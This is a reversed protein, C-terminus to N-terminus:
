PGPVDLTAMLADPTGLPARCSLGECLYAVGGTRPAREALVGPLDACDSAILFVDARAPTLARLAARWAEAEAEACRVIVQARPALAHRLAGLLTPCADPYQALPAAAARLAREAADLYRTEGLLHGLTLLADIAVANGSPLSDDTWPKPRQILSEADHATFWFGGRERDEFRQLLAEALTIAWDLDRPAFACQLKALLADLVFAHDDLYAPFRARGGAHSAYLRGDDWASARLTGLIEAAMRGLAPGEEPLWRATRAVGAALLANWATLRKDDRLPPTRMTRAALLRQRARQLHTEAAAADIGLEAAADAVDRIQQLHWARDEFNPPRDLGWVRAAVAWADADLLARAEDRQWLYYRGEEGESDADRASAYGGGALRMDADLWAVIGLCAARMAADDWSRAARAYLPLLLANDYLMKEFHPITWAADVCYRFIGGGLHDHLGSTAMHALTRQAMAACTAADIGNAAAGIPAAAEDLLLALEGAHPFKPAGLSGGHDPDHRRAIRALAARLPAADPRAGPADDGVRALWDRLEANQTRLADRQQDFAARLRLLLQAFGPMGYRPERPFYTGAFFPTLDQPDLFVTLPWGGGRGTLAQHALQYVRDLDPREERDVKINVFQANMAAATATDEFCEHAMVHCWHCAAYGISLLIPKGTARAEALAAEGWPRWHVPNDKHQLLYPSTEQGLLNAAAPPTMTATTM